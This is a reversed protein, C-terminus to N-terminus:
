LCSYNGSKVCSKSLSNRDEILYHTKEGRRGSVFVTQPHHISERPHAGRAKEGGLGVECLQPLSTQGSRM